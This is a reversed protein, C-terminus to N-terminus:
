RSLRMVTSFCGMPTAAEPDPFGNKQGVYVIEKDSILAHFYSENKLSAIDHRFHAYELIENTAIELGSKFTTKDLAKLDPYTEIIQAKREEYEEESM